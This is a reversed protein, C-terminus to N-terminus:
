PLTFPRSSAGGVSLVVPAGTSVGTPLTANIQYLGAFNPALGSFGVQAMAGGITVVPQGILTALPSMPAPRGTGPTNLVPGVGTAWLIVNRVLGPLPSSRPNRM